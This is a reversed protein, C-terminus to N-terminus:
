VLGNEIIGDLFLNNTLDYLAPAIGNHQFNQVEIQITEENADLAFEFYDQGDADIATPYTLTYSSFFLRDDNNATAEIEVTNKEKFIESSMGIEYNKVAWDSFEDVLLEENNFNIEYRHTSSRSFLRLELKAEKEIMKVNPTMIELALRKNGSLPAGEEGFYGEGVEFRSSVGGSFGIGISYYQSFFKEQTQSM